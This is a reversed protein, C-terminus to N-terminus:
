RLNCNGLSHTGKKAIRPKFFQQCPQPNSGVVMSRLEGDPEKIQNELYWAVIKQGICARWYWNAWDLKGLALNGVM